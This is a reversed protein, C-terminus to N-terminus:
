SEYDVCSQKPPCTNKALNTSLLSSNDGSKHAYNGSNYDTPVASEESFCPNYYSSDYGYCSTKVTGYKGTYQDTYRSTLISSNKSSEITANKTGYYTTYNSSCHALNYIPTLSDRIEIISDKTIYENKNTWTIAM